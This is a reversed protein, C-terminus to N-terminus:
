VRREAKDTHGSAVSIAVWGGEADLHSPLLLDEPLREMRRSRQEMIQFLVKRKTPPLKDETESLTELYGRIEDHEEVCATLMM